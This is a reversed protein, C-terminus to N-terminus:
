INSYRELIDFIDLNQFYVVLSRLSFIHLSTKGWYYMCLKCCHYSLATLLYGWVHTRWFLNCSIRLPYRESFSSSMRQVRYFVIFWVIINKHHFVQWRNNKLSVSRVRVSDHQIHHQDDLLMLFACTLSWEFSEKFRGISRWLM